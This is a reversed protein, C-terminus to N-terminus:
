RKNFEFLEVDILERCHGNKGNIKDILATAAKDAWGNGSMGVSINHFPMYFHKNVADFGVVPIYRDTCKAQSIVEFAIVDSFAVISDFDDKEFIEELESRIDSSKPSVEIYKEEPIKIGNSKFAEQVGSFRNRSSEIYKYAGLYLPNKGPSDIASELSSSM